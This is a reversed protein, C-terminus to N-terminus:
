TKSATDGLYNGNLMVTMKIAAGFTENRYVYLAAKDPKAAFTKIKADQEPNAMPVSACGGLLLLIAILSALLFRNGYVHTM